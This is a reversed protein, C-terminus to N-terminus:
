QSMKLISYLDIKQSLYNRLGGTEFLWSFVFAISLVVVVIINVLMILITGILMPLSLRYELLPESLSLDVYGVLPWSTRQGMRNFRILVEGSNVMVFDKRIRTQFGFRREKIDVIDERLNNLFQREDSKLPQTWITFGRNIRGGYRTLFYNDVTGWFFLGLGVAPLIIQAALLLDRINAM